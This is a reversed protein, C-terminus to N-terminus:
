KVSTLTYLRMSVGNDDYMSTGTLAIANGNYQVKWVSRKWNFANSQPYLKLIMKGPDFFYVGYVMDEGRKNTVFFRGTTKFDITIGEYLKKRDADSTVVADVIWNDHTLFNSDTAHPSPIIYDLAPQNKEQSETTTYNSKTSKNDNSCATIVIGLFLIFSIKRM